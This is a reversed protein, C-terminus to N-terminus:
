KKQLLEWIKDAMKESPQITNGKGLLTLIEEGQKPRHQLLNMLKPVIQEPTCNDQLLEPIIEKQALLNILNVYKIKLIHKALWGTVPNLKYAILHPVGALTLELSVTGSAALAVDSADFAAYRNEKGTIVAFPVSWDKLYETVTKSVTAVTPVLVFLNPIKTALQEISQKFVPLLYRVENKRSGPLVSVVVSDAPIKLKKKLAAGGTFKEEVVPHGVYCCDMHYPQFYNTEKPLICILYDMFQAITKVRGKKWAWVMPAVIHIHPVPCKHKKFLKHMRASFSYSDVTVIIDPKKAKVDNLIEKMHRLIVPISPIVEFIGMVALDAIDFLSTLGQAQMSEGGVGCFDANPYKKRMAAMLKAGLADGSPEGAILYILPNKKM